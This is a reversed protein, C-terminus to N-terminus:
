LYEDGVAELDRLVGLLRSWTTSKESHPHQTM